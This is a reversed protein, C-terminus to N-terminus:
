KHSPSHLPRRSLNSFESDGDESWLSEFDIDCSSIHTYCEYAGGLAPGMTGWDVSKRQSRVRRFSYAGGLRPMFLSEVFAVTFNSWMVPMDHLSIYRLATPPHRNEETDRHHSTSNKLM